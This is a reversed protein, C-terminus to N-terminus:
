YSEKTGVSSVTVTVACKGIRYSGDHLSTSQRARLLRIGQGTTPWLPLPPERRLHHPEQQHQLVVQSELLRRPHAVIMLVRVVRPLKRQSSVQALATAQMDAEYTKTFAHQLCDQVCLLLFREGTVSTSAKISGHASSLIRLGQLATSFSNDIVLQSCSFSAV